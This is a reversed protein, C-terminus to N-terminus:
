MSIVRYWGLSTLKQIGNLGWYMGASLLFFVQLAGFLEIERGLIRVRPLSLKKQIWVLGVLLPMYLSLFFRPGCAIPAYWMYAYLYGAFFGMAFLLLFPRKAARRLSERARRFILVATVVLYCVAFGTTGFSGMTWYYLMQRLGFLPRLWLVEIGHRKFYKRPSPMQDAPLQPWSTADGHAHPGEMCESWSDCWVYLTTNVNYFARGYIRKSTWFYRGTVFFFSLIVLAVCLFPMKKKERLYSWLGRGLGFVVFLGLLPLTSAKTLHTVGLVIGSSLGLVISSRLLCTCLLLFSALFLSFFLMECQVYGAKFAFLTFAFVTVLSLASMRDLSRKLLFFLGVLLACSLFINFAKCLNFFASTPMGQRYMLSLLFPYIPMRNRPTVYRYHSQSMKRACDMYANQDTYAPDQNISAAHLLASVGVVLVVAALVSGTIICDRQIM